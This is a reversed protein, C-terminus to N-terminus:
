AAARGPDVPADATEIAFQEREAMAMRNLDPLVAHEGASKVAHMEATGKEALAHEGAGAIRALNREDIEDGPEFIPAEGQEVGLEDRPMEGAEAGDFDAALLKLSEELGRQRSAQGM